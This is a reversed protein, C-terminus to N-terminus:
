HKSPYHVLPIKSRGSSAQMGRCTGFEVLVQAEMDCMKVVHGKQMCVGENRCEEKCEWPRGRFVCKKGVVINAQAAAHEGTAVKV